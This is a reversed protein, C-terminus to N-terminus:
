GGRTRCWPPRGCPGRAEVPSHQQRSRTLFPGITLSSSVCDSLRMISALWRRRAHGAPLAPCRRRAPAASVGASRGPAVCVCRTGVRGSLRSGPSSQAGAVNVQRACVTTKHPMVAIMCDADMPRVIHLSCSHVVQVLGQCLEPQVVVVQESDNAGAAGCRWRRWGRALTLQKHSDSISVWCLM